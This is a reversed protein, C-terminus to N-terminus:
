ELLRGVIRRQSGTGFCGRIAMPAAGVAFALPKRRTEKDFIGRNPSRTKAGIKLASANGILALSSGSLAVAIDGLVGNGPLQQVSESRGEPAGSATEFEYLITQHM